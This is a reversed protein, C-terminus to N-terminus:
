KSYKAKITITKPDVNTVKVMRRKVFNDLIMSQYSDPIEIGRGPRLYIDVVGQPTNFPVYFGQLSTNKVLRM